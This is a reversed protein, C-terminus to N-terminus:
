GVFYGHAISGNKFYLKPMYRNSWILLITQYLYTIVQQLVLAWVGAEFYALLIATLSRVIISLIKMQVVTAFKLRNYLKCYQVLGFANLVITLCIIPVLNALISENYFKAIPKASIYLSVYLLLSIVFNLWFVSSYDREYVDKHYILSGGFSADVLMNGLAVIIALMAFVGFEEPTLMRALLLTTIFQVLMMTGKEFAVISLNRKLNLPQM